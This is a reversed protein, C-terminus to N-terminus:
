RGWELCVRTGRMPASEITASGGIQSMRERISIAIGLRDAPVTSPEFGRGDDAVEIQLRDDTIEVSVITKSARAHRGSNRVAEGAAAAVTRVVMAPYGADSSNITRRVEFRRTPDVTATVESLHTLVADPTMTGDTDNDGRIRDLAHLTAQAQVALQTSNGRRAAVLLTAMVGDHTLQNFRQRENARAQSAAAAAATRYAQARTDDLVAATRMGMVAAAFYVLSFAFAWAMDPVFLGSRAVDRVVYNITITSVVVVVLVVFAYAPRMALAAAIAALGCFSFFWIGTTGSLHAGNWGFGWTAVAMLYGGAAVGACVRLARPSGRWALPGLALGPGFVVALAPVTWWMHMVALSAAIAPVTLVLYVLYGCAIFVAFQRLIRQGASEDLAVDRDSAIEATTVSATDTAM